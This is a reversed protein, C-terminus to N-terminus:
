LTAQLYHGRGILSSIPYIRVYLTAGPTLGMATQEASTLVRPSSTAARMGALTAFTNSTFFDIEWGTIAPDAPIESGSPFEGSLRTRWDWSITQDNGAGLVKRANVPNFLRLIEGTNVATTTQASSITRGATVAKLYRLQNLESFDMAPRLLGAPNLLVFYDGAQHNGTNRETGRRGRLHNTARYRGGGLPTFDLSQGLEWRAPNGNEAPRGIAWANAGKDYVDDRSANFLPSDGMDVIFSNVTDLTNFQWAGLTGEVTGISAEETVQGRAVLSAEDLGMFLTAGPSPLRYADIAVYAGPTSIDADRLPSTDVMLARSQPPVYITSSSTYDTDTTADSEIVSADDFVGELTILGRGSSRKQIRTRMQSGDEATFLVVDCPELREWDRQITVPGVTIMSAQLDAALMNALRKAQTPTMVIPVEVVQVANSETALRDSSELGDQYDNSANLYKVHIYAPIEIDNRKKLPLPEAPDEGDMVAGLDEWPITAVPAGGRPVAKLGCWEFMFASAILELPQRRAGPPIIMGMISKGALASLQLEAADIGSPTVLGTIADALPIPTPEVAMWSTRLQIPSSAGADSQTRVQYLVGGVLAPANFLAAVNAAGYGLTIARVFTWGSGNYRYLGTAGVCYLDGAEDAILAGDGSIAPSPITTDASLDALNRVYIDRTGTGTRLCYVKDDLVLISQVQNPLSALAALPPTPITGQSRWTVSVDQRRLETTANSTYVINSGSKAYRFADKALRTHTGNQWTIYTVGTGYHNVVVMAEDAQGGTVERSMPASVRGMQMVVGDPLYQLIDIDTNEYVGPTWRPIMVVVGSAQYHASGLYGGTPGTGVIAVREIQGDDQVVEVTINGIQRSNGLQLGQIGLTACGRFAPANGIGVAAEYISWPAQDAAGGMFVVSRAFDASANISGFDADSGITWVLEGNYFIKRIAALRNSSLKILVDAEYIYNTHEAKPGGKGAKTTVPIERLRSGWVVQGSLRVTGVVHPIAAGYSSGMLRLDSLRPGQTKQAPTLLTGVLSGALWGMQAGFTLSGAATLLGTGAIAGGAWAGLGAFALQAM